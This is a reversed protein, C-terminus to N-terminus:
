PVMEIEQAGGDIIKEKWGGKGLSVAQIEREPFAATFNTFFCSEYRM